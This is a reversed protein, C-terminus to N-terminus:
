VITEIISFHTNTLYRKCLDYSNEIEQATIKDESSVYVKGQYQFLGHTKIKYDKIYEYRDADLVFVRAGEINEFYIINKDSDYVFNSTNDLLEKELVEPFVLQRSTGAEGINVHFLGGKFQRKGNKDNTINLLKESGRSVETSVIYNDDKIKLLHTPFLGLSEMKIKKIIKKSSLDYLIVGDQLNGDDAKFGNCAMILTNKGKIMSVEHLFLVDLPLSEILQYSKSDYVEIVAGGSRYRKPVYFYKNDESFAFHGYFVAGKEHVDKLVKKKEIDFVCWREGSKQPILIHMPQSPNQLYSHGKFAIQHVSTLKSNFDYIILDREDGGVLFAGKGALKKADAMFPFLATLLIVNKLFDRRNNM